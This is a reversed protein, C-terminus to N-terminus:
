QLKGARFFCSYDRIKELHRMDRRLWSKAPRNERNVRNIGVQLGTEILDFGNQNGFRSRDIFAKGLTDIQLKFFLKVKLSDM